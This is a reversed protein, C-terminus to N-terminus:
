IGSRLERFAGPLHELMGSPTLTEETEGGNFIAREAARGCLWAGLRAADFPALRQALLAAIVGTLTDGMGGVAMGPTGTTNYSLPQDSRAM